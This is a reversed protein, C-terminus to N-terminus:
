DLTVVLNTSTANPARLGPTVPTTRVSTKNVDQELVTVESAQMKHVRAGPNRNPDLRKLKALLGDTYKKAEKVKDRYAKKAAELMKQGEADSKHSAEQATHQVEKLSVQAERRAEKMATTYKAELQERASKAQAAQTKGLKEQAAAQAVKRKEAREAVAATLAAAKRQAALAEQKATAEAKAEEKAAGEKAKRVQAMLATQHSTDPVFPKEVNTALDARLKATEKRKKSLAQELEQTKRMEEAVGAEETKLKRELKSSNVAMRERLLEDKAMKNKQEASLKGVKTVELSMLQARKLEVARKVEAELQAAVQQEYDSASQADEALLEKAAKKKGEWSEAQNKLKVAMSARLNRLETDEAAQKDKAAQAAQQAKLMTQRISLVQSHMEAAQEMKRVKSNVRHVKAAANAMTEAEDAKLKADDKLQKKRQLDQEQETKAAIKEAKANLAQVRMAEGVEEKAADKAQVLREQMIEIVQSEKGRDELQDQAADKEKQVLVKAKQLEVAEAQIQAQLRRAEEQAKKTADVPSPAAAEAEERKTYYDWHPGFLIAKGTLACTTDTRDFKFAKCNEAKECLSECAPRTTVQTRLWEGHHDHFYSLGAVSYYGGSDKRIALESNPDFKMSTTSVVCQAKQSHWSFSKCGNGRDNCTQKCKFFTNANVSDSDENFSLGPLKDYKPAAAMLRRGERHQVMDRADAEESNNLALATAVVVFWLLERRM